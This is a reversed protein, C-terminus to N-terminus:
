RFNLILLMLRLTFILTLTLAIIYVSDWLRIQCTVREHSLHCDYEGTLQIVSLRDPYVSVFEIM